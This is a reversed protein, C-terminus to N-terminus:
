KVKATSQGQERYYQVPVQDGWYQLTYKTVWTNWDQRGQTAIRIVRIFDNALHVMLWQNGDKVKPSWAGKKHKSAKLHLRAGRVSYKDSLESSASLQGDTIKGSEM